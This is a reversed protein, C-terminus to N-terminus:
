RSPESNVPVSDTNIHSSTMSQDGTPQLEAIKKKVEEHIFDRIMPESATIASTIAALIQTGESEGSIARLLVQPGTLKIKVSNGDDDITDEEFSKFDSRDVMLRYAIRVIESWELNKFISNIREFHQYQKLFYVRDELNPLRLEYSKGTKQLHFIPKEPLFDELQM